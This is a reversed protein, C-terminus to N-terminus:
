WRHHPIAITFLGIPFARCCQTKRSFKPRDGVEKTAEVRNSLSQFDRLSLELGGYEPHDNNDITFAIDLNDGTLLGAQQCREAMHWGM